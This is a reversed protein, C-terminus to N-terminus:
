GSFYFLDFDIQVLFFHIYKPEIHHSVSVQPHILSAGCFHFGYSLQLSAAWPFSEPPAIQGGVIRDASRGRGCAPSGMRGEEQGAEMMMDDEDEDEQEDDEEWNQDSELM